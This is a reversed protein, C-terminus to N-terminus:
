SIKKRINENKLKEIDSLILFKISINYILIIFVSSILTFIFINQKGIITDLLNLVVIGLISGLLFSVINSLLIRKNTEAINDYYSKKINSTEHALKM